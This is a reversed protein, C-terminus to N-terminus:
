HRLESWYWNSVLHNLATIGSPSFIQPLPATTIPPSLRDEWPQFLTYQPGTAGRAGRNRCWQFDNSILKTGHPVKLHGRNSEALLFSIYWKKALINKWYNKPFPHPKFGNKSKLHYPPVRLMLKKRIEGQNTIKKDNWDLFKWGIVGLVKSGCSSYCRCRTFPSNDLMITMQILEATIDAAAGPANHFLFNVWFNAIM